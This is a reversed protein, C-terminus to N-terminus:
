LKVGLTLLINHNVTTNAVAGSSIGETNYFYYDDKMSNYAYALDMFFWETKLGLGGSFGLRSGDNLDNQYPSTFYKAGARFSFINYRWETGIRVHHTLAYSNRISSNEGNFSYDYADFRAGSYDALEYDASVLGVNGIIFALNGQVRYPTQLSYEYYGSPSTRSYITEGDLDPTNFESTMTVQWYDRMNGYWTPTHFAAGVRLWDSARYIAGVKLNFGSGRTELEEYRRFNKLDSSQIDSETYVTSEFYRISPIGLTLGLYLRNNYNSGISFVYENMSGRSNITKTQLKDVGTPIPTVYSSSDPDGPKLDLLWDWWALNLDYAFSGDPDQEIETYKIKDADQAYVDLLSNTFNTGTMEYRYNFDNLRNLGTAFTVYKWGPRNPKSQVKSTLVLGLNGLYFNTRMDSGSTGNFSSAVSGTHVAPTISFESTKFLGLGAPNTGATTFDAGLAGFAGSLGMYRATGGIDTRSYRFAETSTQSLTTTAAALILASIMWLKKM